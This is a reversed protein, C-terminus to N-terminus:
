AQLGADFFAVLVTINDTSGRQQAETVLCQAAQEPIQDDLCRKLVRQADTDGMADWVGDSAIILAIDQTSDRVTISPRWSVGAGKLAHDGLARSVGLQGAVRGRSVFGGESEVRKVESIDTPRHDVSVRVDAHACDVAVARSDGVNAVHLRMATQTKRVLAVTATCGQRWAGVLRLQDDVKEFTKTLATAIVEDSWRGMGGCSASRPLSGRVANLENLLIAHLKEETYDVACRGGHGDYVAFLGWQELEASGDEVFFPDVVVASDEMHARFSANPEAAVSALVAVKGAEAAARRAPLGLAPLPKSVAPQQVTPLLPAFSSAIAASPAQRQGPALWSPENSPLRQEVDTDPWGCPRPREMGSGTCASASAGPAVSGNLRFPDSPRKAASGPDRGSSAASASFQGAQNAGSSVLQSGAEAGPQHRTRVPATSGV